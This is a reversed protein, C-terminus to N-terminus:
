KHDTKVGNGLPKCFYCSCTKSHQEIKTHNYAIKAEVLRVGHYEPLLKEITRACSEDFQGASTKDSVVTVM